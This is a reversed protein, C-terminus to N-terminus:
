RKKWELYKQWIEALEDWYKSAEINKRCEEGLLRVLLLAPEPFGSKQLRLAFRLAGDVNEQTPNQRVLSAIASALAYIQSLEQPLPLDPQQLYTEPHPIEKLLKLFSCLEHAVAPGVAAGAIDRLTLSDTFCGEWTDILRSLMEWTRPTPFAKTQGDLKCLFEPRYSLFALIEERIGRRSPPSPLSLSTGDEGRAWRRWSELDNRLEVHIFRNALPPPLPHVGAKDVERNGAALVMWGPPLLYTGLRRDLILQYCAHQVAPVALNLEDLFIIGRGKRPLWEPVCWVTTRSERSLDPIGLLDSPELYAPRLDILTFTEESGQFDQPSDSFRLGLARAIEAATQRVIQSKGIGPAGWVFLPIGSFYSLAVFSKLKPPSVVQIEELAPKEM